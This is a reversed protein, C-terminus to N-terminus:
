LEAKEHNIQVFVERQNWVRQVKQDANDIVCKAFSSGSCRIGIEIRHMAYRHIMKFRHTRQIAHIAGEQEAEESAWQETATASVEDKVNWFDLISM